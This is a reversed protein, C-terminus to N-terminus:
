RRKASARPTRGTAPDVGGAWGTSYGWAVLQGRALRTAGGEALTGERSLFFVYGREGADLHSRRDFRAHAANARREAIIRRRNGARRGKRHRLIRERCSWRRRPFKGM